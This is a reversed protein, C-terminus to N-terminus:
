KAYEFSQIVMAGDQQVVTFRIKDGVKLHEFGGPAKVVFVMTMPPMDLGKIEGHRVTIKGNAKDIRRVEGEGNGTGGTQAAATGSILIFLSYLVARATRM